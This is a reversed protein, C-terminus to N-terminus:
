HRITQRKRLVSAALDREWVLETGYFFAHGNEIYYVMGSRWLRELATYPLRFNTRRLILQFDTVIIFQQDRMKM